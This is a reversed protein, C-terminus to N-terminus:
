LTAVFGPFRSFIVMKQSLWQFGLFTLSFISFGHFDPFLWIFVKSRQIKAKIIHMYWRWWLAWQYNRMNVSRKLMTQIFWKNLVSNSNYMNWKTESHMWCPKGSPKDMRHCTLAQRLHLMQPKANRHNM